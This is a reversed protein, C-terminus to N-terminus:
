NQWPLLFSFWLSLRFFSCVSHYISVWTHCHYRAACLNGCWWQTTMFPFCSCAWFCTLVSYFSVVKETKATVNKERESLLSYKGKVFLQQGRHGKRLARSSKWHSKDQCCREPSVPSRRSLGGRPWQKQPDVLIMTEKLPLFVMLYQLCLVPKTTRCVQTFHRKAELPCHVRDCKRGRPRLKRM